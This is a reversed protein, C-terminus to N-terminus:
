RFVINPISIFNSLRNIEIHSKERKQSKHHFTYAPKLKAVLACSTTCTGLADKSVQESSLSIPFGIVVPGALM